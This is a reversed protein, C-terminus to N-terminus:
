TDKILPESHLPSPIENAQVLMLIINLGGMERTTRNQDLALSYTAHHPLVFATM